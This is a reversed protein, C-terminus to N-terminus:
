PIIRLTGKAFMWPPTSYSVNTLGGDAVPVDISAPGRQKGLYGYSVELRHSGPTAPLVHSGWPLKQATGDVSVTLKTFYLLWALPTHSASLEIGTM